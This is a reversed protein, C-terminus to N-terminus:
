ARYKKLEFKNEETRNVLKEITVIFEFLSNYANNIRMPQKFKVFGCVQKIYGCYGEILENEGHTHEHLYDYLSEWRRIRYEGDKDIIYNTIYGFHCPQINYAEEYQVFHHNKDNIKVEIIYQAFDTRIGFDVRSGKKNNDTKEREIANICKIHNDEIEPFFYKIFLQKFEDSAQLLAWTIDSLNNEKYLRIGLHLFFSNLTDM